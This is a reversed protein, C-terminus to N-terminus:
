NEDCKLFHFSDKTKPFNNHMFKVFEIYNNNNRSYYINKFLHYKDIFMMWSTEKKKKTPKEFKDTRVKDEDHLLIYLITNFEGDTMQSQVIDVYKKKQKNDNIIENQHIYRMLQYLSRYYPIISHTSEDETPYSIDSNPKLQEFFPLAVNSSFYSIEKKLSNGIEQHQQYWQFFISEFQLVSSMTTQSRYTLYIFLASAFSLSLGFFTSFAAWDESRSSLSWPFNYYYFVVQILLFVLCVCIIIPEYIRKM